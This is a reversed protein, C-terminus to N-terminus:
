RSAVRADDITFLFRKAEDQDNMDANWLVLKGEIKIPDPSYEIARDKPQRRVFVIANADPPACFFCGGPTQVLMLKELRDPDDYPMVFGSLRVLRGELKKLESPFSPISRGAYVTKALLDFNITTPKATAPDAVPAATVFGAFALILGFAATTIKM